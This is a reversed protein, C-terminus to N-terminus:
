DHLDGLPGTLAHMTELALERGTDHLTIPPAAARQFGGAGAVYPRSATSPREGATAFSAVLAGNAVRKATVFFVLGTPSATDVSMLVELLLDAKGLLASTEVRQADDSGSTGVGTTRMVLNRDVLMAGGDLLARNFAGRLEWEQPEKLGARSGTDTVRTGRAVEEERSSNSDEQRYDTDGPQTRSSEHEETTGRLTTERTRVFDERSSSLQDSLARNRFVAIRTPGRESNVAHFRRLTSEGHDIPEAPPPALVAPVNSRVTGQAIAGTVAALMLLCWVTVPKNRRKM